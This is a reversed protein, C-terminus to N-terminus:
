VSSKDVGETPLAVVQFDGYPVEFSNRDVGECPPRCRLPSLRSNTTRNRDVGEAFPPRSREGDWWWPVPSIEIWAGALSPSAQCFLKGGIWSGFDGLHVPTVREKTPTSHTKIQM